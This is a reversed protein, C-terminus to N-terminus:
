SARASGARWAHAAYAMDRPEFHLGDDDDTYSIIGGIVNCVRTSVLANFSPSKDAAAWPLPTAPQHKVDSM